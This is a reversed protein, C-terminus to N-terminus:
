HRAAQRPPVPPPKRGQQGLTQLRASLPHRQQCCEFMDARFISVIACRFGIECKWNMGEGNIRCVKYILGDVRDFLPDAFTKEKTAIHYMYTGMPIVLVMFIVLTVVIQLM